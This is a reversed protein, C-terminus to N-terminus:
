IDGDLLRWLELHKEEQRSEGADREKFGRAPTRMSSIFAQLDALRYFIRGKIRFFAILGARRYRSMSRVSVGSPPILRAANAESVLEDPDGSVETAAAGAAIVQMKRWARGYKPQDSSM